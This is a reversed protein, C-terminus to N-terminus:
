LSPMRTVSSMLSSRFVSSFTAAQTDERWTMWLMQCNSVSRKVLRSETGDLVTIGLGNQYAGFSGGDSFVLGSGTGVQTMRKASEASQATSSALGAVLGTSLAIICALPRPNTM